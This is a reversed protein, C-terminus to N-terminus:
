LVFYLKFTDSRDIYVICLGLMSFLLGFSVCRGRVSPYGRAAISWALQEIYGGYLGDECTSRGLEVFM